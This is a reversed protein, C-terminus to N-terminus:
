RILEFLFAIITFNDIKRTSLSNKNWFQCRLRHHIAKKIWISTQHTMQVNLIEYKMAPIRANELHSNLFFDFICLLKMLLIRYETDLVIWVTFRHHKLNETKRYLFCFSIIPDYLSIFYWIFQKQGDGSHMCIDM